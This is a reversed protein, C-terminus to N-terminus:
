AKQVVFVFNEILQEALFPKREAPMVQIAPSKGFDPYDQFVLWTIDPTPTNDKIYASATLCQKLAEDQECLQNILAFDYQPRLQYSLPLDQALREIITVDVGELHQHNLRYDKHYARDAYGYYYNGDFVVMLGHPKLAQLAHHYATAPDPLNWFVDRSVVLDFSENPVDPNIADGQQLHVRQQAQPMLFQECHQKAQTLMETSQDIATVTCGLQALHMSLLAPGCGLDLAHFGQLPPTTGTEADNKVVAPLKLAFHQTLLHDLMALTGKRDDRIEQAIDAGYGSARTNWYANIDDNLAMAKGKLVNSTLCSWQVM